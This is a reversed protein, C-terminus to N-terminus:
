IKKSFWTLKSITSMKLIIKDEFNGTRLTAQGWLRRDEFDETRLSGYDKPVGLSGFKSSNESFSWVWTKVVLACECQISTLYTYGIHTNRDQYAMHHPMVSIGVRERSFCSRFRESSASTKAGTWNSHNIRNSPNHQLTTLNFPQLTTLNYPQLATYWSINWGLM